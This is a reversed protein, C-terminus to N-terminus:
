RGPWGAACQVGAAGSRRICAAPGRSSGARRRADAARRAVQLRQHLARAQDLGPAVAVGQGFVGRSALVQDGAPEGHMAVAVAEDDGIGSLAQVMAPSMKMGGGAMPEAICPSWTSTSSARLCAVVAAGFAADQAHERAAIRRDDARKM